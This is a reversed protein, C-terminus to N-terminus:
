SPAPSFTVGPDPGPLLRGSCVRERRSNKKAVGRPGGIVGFPLPLWLALVVWVHGFSSFTKRGHSLLPDHHMSGLAIAKGQKRTLSDDVLVMIPLGVALLGLAVTFVVKGLADPEWRARSFFRHWVSIHRWSRESDAGVVGAAVAVNTVTHRGLCQLWGVVLYRFTQYTPATFCPACATLLVAFSEPVMLPPM